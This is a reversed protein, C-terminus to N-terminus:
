SASGVGVIYYRNIEIPIKNIRLIFKLIIEESINAIKFNSLFANQIRITSIDM